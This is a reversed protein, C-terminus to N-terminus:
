VRKKRKHRNVLLLAIATLVVVGGMELWKKYPRLAARIPAVAPDCLAMLMRSIRIARTRQFYQGIWMLGEQCASMSLANKMRGCNMRRECLVAAFAQSTHPLYDACHSALANAVYRYHYRQDLQAASARQRVIEKLWGHVSKSNAAKSVTIALWPTTRLWRTVWSNWETSDPGANFATYCFAAQEPWWKSEADHRLQGYWTAKKRYIWATSTPRHRTTVHKM